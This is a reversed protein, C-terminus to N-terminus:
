LTAMCNEHADMGRASPIIGPCPLPPFCPRTSRAMIRRGLRHRQGPGPHSGGNVLAVFCLRDSAIRNNRLLLVLLWISPSLRVRLHSHCGVLCRLLSGHETPPLSSDRSWVQLQSTHCTIYKYQGGDGGDQHLSRRRGSDRSKTPLGTALFSNRAAATRSARGSTLHSPQWRDGGKESRPAHRLRRSSPLAPPQGPAREQNDLCVGAGSVLSQRAFRLQWLDLWTSQRILRRPITFFTECQGPTQLSPRTGDLSGGDSGDEVTASSVLGPITSM